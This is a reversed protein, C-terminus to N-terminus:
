PKVKMWAMGAAGGLVIVRWYLTYGWDTLLSVMLLSCCVLLSPLTERLKLRSVLSKSPFCMNGAGPQGSYFHSLLLDKEKFQEYMWHKFQDDSHPIHKIDIRKIHIHVEPKTATLFNPMGPAQLRHGTKPDVTNSYAITVDYVAHLHERLHDIGTKIGRMRPTLVYQYPHLGRQAAFQKSKEIVEQKSPNFRTGEPFVVMWVPTNETKLRNLVREITKQNKSFQGDRKVYICGHQRFYFGYLPLYKLSDKLIYRIHGIMGQRVALMNTVIWDVTSQHNSMYIVNEPTGFLRDVDGYLHLQTGSYTEFFFLVLRQYVSWLKDDGIQYIRHPLAASLARWAGWVAMYCPASGVIVFGPVIWRFQHLNIVVSLM